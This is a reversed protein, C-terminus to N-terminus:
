AALPPTERGILDPDWIGYEDLMHRAQCYGLLAYGIHGSLDPRRWSIKEIQRLLQQEASGRSALRQALLKEIRGFSPMGRAASGACLDVFSKLRRFFADPRYIQNVLWRSGVVLDEESMLKPRFNTQLFNGTGLYRTPTLRGEEKLRAYLPTSEPAVLTGFHIIPTPLSNIFTAQREFIDPGDHDFGVIIGPLVMMGARTLKRVEEALDVRLNQRKMTEALSEPNPTEIGVFAAKLNAEICLKLLDPDRALDISLQTSFHMPGALRRDNWDRLALLLERARRRMVTLNDDALLVQRYGQVYLTDLEALVQAPEKWRQKRGLYQIVDCFECEFPCGRSTQIQARLARGRPYLDWRPVPSTKLDPRGGEYHSRATGAAIDVFLTPAIAELEGTVLIDCHPQFEDPMLSAASGGIVVLKGRRRFETAIEIARRRQSIKGTIGIVGAPTDFDVPQLREDCLSIDWGDPVLAAVTPTVLDAFNTVDAIGWDSLVEMGHWGLVSEKPNVLYIARWAGSM